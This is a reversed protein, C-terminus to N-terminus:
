VFTIESGVASQVAVSRLSGRHDAKAGLLARDRRRSSAAPMPGRRGRGRRGGGETPPVAPARRSASSFLKSVTDGLQRSEVINAEREALFGSVAHVIDVRDPCTINFRAVLSM